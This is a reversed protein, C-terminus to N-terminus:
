SDKIHITGHTAFYSADDMNSFKKVIVGKKYLVYPKCDAMSRFVGIRQHQGLGYGNIRHVGYYFESM